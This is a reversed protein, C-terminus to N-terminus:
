WRDSRINQEKCYETQNCPMAHEYLINYKTSAGTVDGYLGFQTRHINTLFIALHPQREGELSLSLSNKSGVSDM